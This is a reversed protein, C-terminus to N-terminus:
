RFQPSPNQATTTVGVVLPECDLSVVCFTSLDRGLLSKSELLLLQIINGQRNENIVVSYILVWALIVRFFFEYTASKYPSVSTGKTSINTKRRLFTLYKIAAAEPSDRGYLM